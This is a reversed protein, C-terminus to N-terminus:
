PDPWAAVQFPFEAFDEGDDLNVYLVWAGEMPIDTDVIYGGEPHATAPVRVIGHTPMTPSVLDASRVSAGDTRVRFYNRGPLHAAEAPQVMVTRGSTTTGSWVPGRADFFSGPEASRLQSDCGLLALLAFGTLLRTAIM